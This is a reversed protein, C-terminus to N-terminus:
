LSVQQTFCHISGGNLAIEHANVPIVKYREGVIAKICEVAEHDTDVGYTPFILTGNTILFNAYSPVAFDGEERWKKEPIKGISASVLLNEAEEKTFKFPRCATLKHVKLKRGKADVSSSLQNYCNKFVQYYENEKDETFCTVVEAPGIFACIDDVHGDTEFEGCDIGEDLWIVKEFGLYEHLTKEIEEQSMEPNRNPNLLCSKTTIATGEGDTTISGGEFVFEAKYRDISKCQLMKRAAMNDFEWGAMAGSKEGGWGNFLFDVGRVEGTHRNKVTIAGMDRPWNNDLSMEYISVDMDRFLFETELYLDQTVAINVATGAELIAKALEVQTKRIPYGGSHWTTHVGGICIWVSEQPEYEAPMVFGDDIPKTKLLKSPM